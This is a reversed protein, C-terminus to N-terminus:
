FLAAININNMRFYNCVVLWPIVARSISFSLKKRMYNSNSLMRNTAGGGEPMMFLAAMRFVLHNVSGTYKLMQYHPTIGIQYHV